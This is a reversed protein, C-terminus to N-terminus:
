TDLNKMSGDPDIANAIIFLYKDFDDVKPTQYGVSLCDEITLPHFQFTGALTSEIEEQSANELSVWIYGTTKQLNGPIDQISISEPPKGAELHVAKIM